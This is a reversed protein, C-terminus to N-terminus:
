RGELFDAILAATEAPRDVQVLHGAGPVREIRTAGVIGAAFREAYSPAILRDREGWVLLTPCTIRHLRRVLKLDGVPWFLRAMVEDARYAIIKFQDVTAIDADAPPGFVEEYVNRDEVLLPPRDPPAEAYINVPPATEDYLGFPGLLTLSRVTGPSAAAVEGALMASISSAVLDVPEEGVLEGLVDLGMALWDLQNHLMEHGRDSGHQGPLSVVILRRGDALDEHFRTWRPVGGLGSWLVTPEGSGREWVRCESGNVSIRREVDPGTAVLTSM